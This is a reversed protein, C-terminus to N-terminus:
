RCGGRRPGGWLGSGGARLIGRLEKGAASIKKRGRAQGREEALHYNSTATGEIERAIRAAEEETIGVQM